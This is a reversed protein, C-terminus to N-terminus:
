NLLQNAYVMRIGAAEMEPIMGRVAIVTNPRAHGIVTVSGNKHAMDVAKRLQKKILGIDSSNDLFLENEGTRVGLQRAVEAGV